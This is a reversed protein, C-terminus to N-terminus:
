KWRYVAMDPSTGMQAAGGPARYVVVKGDVLTQYWDPFLILYDVGVEDLYNALRGEDRLFPIVEPTILGALDIIPRESFYGLAGIDHAAILTEPTTNARVWQATAVMETQITMVDDAYARAGNALFALWVLSASAAFGRTLVFAWSTRPIKRWLQVSGILGCVFFVPMAPILYRGHQYTVPLRLAYVGAYGLFWLWAGMWAWSRARWTNVAMTIFGPALFIGVGILPLRLEALWRAALSTALMAAYEAQKAYFTNPWFSGNALRNFLLYPALLLLLGGLLRALASLQKRPSDVRALLLAWLAPGLLTLGDPRVWLGLGIALGVWGWRPEESVLLLLTALIVLAMLATEMGSVAAWVLHWEGVLLIGALPLRCKWGTARAFFAQGLVGVGVLSLAGLGYTWPLVMWFAIRQGVALLATWAPSTSGASPQGLIYAWEGHLALNRAYTQHIWADDLPFGLPGARQCTWLFAGVAALGMLIIWGWGPIPRLMTKAISKM